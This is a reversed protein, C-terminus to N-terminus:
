QVVDGDRRCVCSKKKLSQTNIKNMVCTSLYVYVSIELVHCYLYLNDALVRSYKMYKLHVYKKIQREPSRADRYIRIIFGVLHM